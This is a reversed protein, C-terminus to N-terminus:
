LNKEASKAKLYIPIVAVALLASITWSVPIGYQRAILGFLILGLASGTTVVMSEFSFITAREKESAFKNIYSLQIPDKIGRSLEHLAFSSIALWAIASLSSILLMISFLVISFIMIYTYSKNKKLMYKAWLSGVLSMGTLIAWLWGMIYLKDGLMENFRPAWFMNLPQAIFSLTAGGLIVWILVKHGLCYKVSTSAIEKIQYFAKKIHLPKTEEMDDVMFILFFAFQIFCLIAGIIFPAAINYSALYGGIVGGIIGAGKAYINAQSFVFDVKGTFGQKSSAHVFWAEFAGYILTSSVGVLIEAMAFGFITRSVAYTAFGLSCIISSILVAKKRGIADAFAGTPVELIVITVMYIVNILSIQFLDMGNKLLFITYIAFTLSGALNSLATGAYYVAAAEKNKINKVLNRM